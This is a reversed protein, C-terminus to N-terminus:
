GVGLIESPKARNKSFRGGPIGSRPTLAGTGLRGQNGIEVKGQNGLELKPVKGDGLGHNEDTWAGSLPPRLRANGLPVKPFLPLHLNAAHFVSDGGPPAVTFSDAIPSSPPPPIPSKILASRPHHFTPRDATLQTERNQESSFTRATRQRAGKLISNSICCRGSVLPCGGGGDSWVGGDPKTRIPAHTTALNHELWAHAGLSGIRTGGLSAVCM